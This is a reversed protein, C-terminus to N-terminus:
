IIVNEKVNPIILTLADLIAERSIGERLILLITDDGALTGIIEHSVRNDIDSAISSAYGPRTKIVALNNAFQLSLYGPRGSSYESVAGFLPQPQPLRYVYTGEATPSKIIHLEKMDRSLTAQTTEIGKQRLLAALEEQNGIKNGSILSVITQMRDKKTVKM